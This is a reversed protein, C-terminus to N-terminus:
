LISVCQVDKSLVRERLTRKGQTPRNHYSSTGGSTSKTLSQPKETFRYPSCRKGPLSKTTSPISPEPFDM